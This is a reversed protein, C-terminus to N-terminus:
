GILKLIYAIIIMTVMGIICFATVKLTASETQKKRDSDYYPHKERKNLKKM